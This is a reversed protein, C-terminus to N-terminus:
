IIEGILYHPMAKKLRVLITKGLIKGDSKVAVLRYNGDRCLWTNEFGKKDVLCEANMGVFKKNKASVLDTFMRSLANSRKMIEEDPLQKILAAPTGPMPWYRSINIIDPQIKNMLELTERFDDSTETPYGCIIDTGLMMDPFKAKFASVIKVFDKVKYKRNMDKLVKDSGSQLPLHLFKFMKEDKYCEILKDIIPVVHNPNMMGLRILFRGKIKLIDALLDTLKENEETDLGYAANDQSTLWIEKCGGDLDAKINIIIQEKPYSFLSGKAFRTICYTCNGLCGELIQTIGIVNNAKIKPMCLKIEDKHRTLEVEKGRIVNGVVKAIEKIHHSGVFSIEKGLRKLRSVQSPIDAMCGTVIVRKNRSVNEIRSFMKQLTKGKVICTNIIAIDADKESIIINFGARTLIGAIIESNNQNASCGYTEIYINYM